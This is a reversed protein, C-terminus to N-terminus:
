GWYGPGFYTDGFYEGFYPGATGVAFTGDLELADTTRVRFTGELLVVPKIAFIGPLGFQLGGQQVAFTGQLDLTTGDGEVVVLVRQDGRDTTGRIEWPVRRTGYLSLLATDIMVKDTRTLAAMSPVVAVSGTGKPRDWRRQWRRAVKRAAAETAVYLLDLSRDTIVDYRDIMDPSDLTFVGAQLGSGWSVVLRTASPALFGLAIEGVVERATLTAVAAANQDQITYRWLGRDDLWLDALGCYGSNARFPEPDEGRDILRWTIGMAAQAARTTTWSPLHLATEGFLFELRARTIPVPETLPGEPTGSYRGAPTDILGKLDATVRGTSVSLM